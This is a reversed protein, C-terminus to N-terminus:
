KIKNKSMKVGCIEQGAGYRDGGAKEGGIQSKASTRVEGESIGCVVHDKYNQPHKCAERIYPVNRHDYAKDCEQEVIKVAKDAPLLHFFLLLFLDWELVPVLM